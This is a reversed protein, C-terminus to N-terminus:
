NFRRALVITNKFKKTKGSIDFVESVIIYIGVPLTQMKDGLGDWRYVGKIGCLANRELYKVPRGNADYITLNAVYGPASFQYEINAVDDVGDNDPSFIEPSVSITGSPQRTGLYQSNKYGPTGYGVSTSASHFNEATSPGNYDIRELAVGETIAILQFHWKDSYKVEDMIKGQGDLIIVDGKDNNYSPMAALTIFADRNLTIYQLLVAQPDETLLLFDGPFLLLSDTSVPYISSIINTTNRNAIYLQRTNIIKPSRNYIEVYDVGLPHPNFLIENIVIDLSDPLVSLGVRAINKPGITNGMCDTLTSVTVNYVKNRLISSNLKLTVRDFRPAPVSASQPIGIGDSIKYNTTLSAKLSDLPEDFLMTIHLSDPAWARLLAPLTRDINVADVSNKKGPTGGIADVSARWNAAGSCPNKTDVM